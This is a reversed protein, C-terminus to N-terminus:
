LLEDAFDRIEGLGADVKVGDGRQRFNFAAEAFRDVGQKIVIAGPWDLIEADVDTVQFIAFNACAVAPWYVGPAIVKGGVAFPESSSPM